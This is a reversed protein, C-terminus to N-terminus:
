PGARHLADIQRVSVDQQRDVAFQLTVRVM